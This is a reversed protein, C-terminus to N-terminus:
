AKSQHFASVCYPHHHHHCHHNKIISPRWTLPHDTWCQPKDMLDGHVWSFCSVAGECSKQPQLRHLYWENNENRSQSLIQRLSFQEGNFDKVQEQISKLKYLRGQRLPNPFLTHTMSFAKNTLKLSTESSRKSMTSLIVKFAKLLVWSSQIGDLWVWGHKRAKTIIAAIRFTLYYGNFSSVQFLVGFFVSSHTLVKVFRHRFVAGRYHHHFFYCITM